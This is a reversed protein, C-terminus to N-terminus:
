TPGLGMQNKEVLDLWHYLGALLCAFPCITMFIIGGQHSQKPNFLAKLVNEWHFYSADKLQHHFGHIGTQRSEASFGM